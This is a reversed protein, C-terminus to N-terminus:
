WGRRRKIGGGTVFAAVSSPDGRGGRVVGRDTVEREPDSGCLDGRAEGLETVVV